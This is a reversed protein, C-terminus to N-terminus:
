YQYKVEGFRRSTQSQSSISKNGQGESLKWTSDTCLDIIDTQTYSDETSM